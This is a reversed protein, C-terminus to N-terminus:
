LREVKRPRGRRKLKESIPLATLPSHLRHTEALLEPNQQIYIMTTTISRHGLLEKLRYVDVGQKAMSTAFTHRLRHPHFDVGSREELRRIVMGFGSQSLPVGDECLWLASDPSDDQEQRYQQLYAAIAIRSMESFFAPRSGSKGSVQCRNNKLDLDCLRISLLEGRRIGSDLLLALMALNRRGSYCDLRDPKM